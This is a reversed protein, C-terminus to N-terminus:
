EEPRGLAPEQDANQYQNQDEDPGKEMWHQMGYIIFEAIVVLLV